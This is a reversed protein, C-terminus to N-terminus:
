LVEPLEHEHRRYYFVGAALCVIAFLTCAALHEIRPLENRLLCGRIGECITALPNFLFWYQYQAPIEETPYFVPTVFLYVRMLSTLAYETDQYFTHMVSFLLALGSSMAVLLLLLVPVFWFTHHYAVGIIRFVAMLIVLSLGFHVLSSASVAAPLLWRPFYIKKVVERFKLFTPCSGLVTDNFYLWPLLGCLYKITFNPIEHQLLQQFVFGVVVIQFLPTILSWMFGLMSRRYRAKLQSVTLAWLLEAPQSVKGESTQHYGDTVRELTAM